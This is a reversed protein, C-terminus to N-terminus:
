GGDKHWAIDVRMSAFADFAFEIRHRDLAGIRRQNRRLQRLSYAADRARRPDVGSKDVCQRLELDDGAETDAVVGYVRLMGRFTADDDGVRRVYERVFRGIRGNA